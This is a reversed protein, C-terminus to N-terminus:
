ERGPKGAYREIYERALRESAGVQDVSLKALLRIVSKRADQAIESEADDQPVAPFNAVACRYWAYAEIANEATGKGNEFAQALHWQSESHGNTAAKKWLSVAHVQDPEGGLGNYLLFGLNNLASIEGQEVANTWHQRATAYDKERYAQVGLNYETDTAQAAACGVLLSVVIATIGFVSPSRM